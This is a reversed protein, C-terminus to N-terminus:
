RLDRLEYLVRSKLVYLWTTSICRLNVLACQNNLLVM